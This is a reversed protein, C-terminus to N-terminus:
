FPTTLHTRFNDFAAHDARRIACPFGIHQDLTFHDLLDTFIQFAIFVDIGLTSIHDGTSNIWMGMKFHWKHSRSGGLRELGSGPGSRRASRRHDYIEAQGTFVTIQFIRYILPMTLGCRLNTAINAIVHRDRTPVLIDEVPHFVSNIHTYIRELM